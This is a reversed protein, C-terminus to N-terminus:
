RLLWVQPVYTLMEDESLDKCSPVLLKREERSGSKHYCTMQVWYALQQRMYCVCSPCETRTEQIHLHLFRESPFNKMCEVCRNTHTKAYHNEYEEYSSFPRAQCLPKESCVIAPQQHQQSPADVRSLKAPSDNSSDAPPSPTNLELSPPPSPSSTRPRKSMPPEFPTTPSIWDHVQGTM